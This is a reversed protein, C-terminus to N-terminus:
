GETVEENAFRARIEAREADRHDSEATAVEYEQLETRFRERAPMTKLVPWFGNLVALGISMFLMLGWPLGAVLCILFVPTLCLTASWLREMDFREPYPEDPRSPRPLEPADDLAAKLKIERQRAREAAKKRERTERELQECRDAERTAIPALALLALARGPSTEAAVESREAGASM